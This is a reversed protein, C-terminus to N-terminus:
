GGFYTQALKVCLKFVTGTFSTLILQNPLSLKATGLVVVRGQGCATMKFVHDDGQSQSCSLGVPGSTEDEYLFSALAM